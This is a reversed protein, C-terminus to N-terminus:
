ACAPVPPQPGGFCRVPLDHLCACAPATVCEGFAFCQETKDPVILHAAALLRPDLEQKGEADSGLACIHLPPAIGGAGNAHRRAGVHSATLLPERSPTCTFILDCELVLQAISSAVRAEWGHATAALAAAAEPRRAWIVLSRTALGVAGLTQVLLRCITGAGVLGIARPTAVTPRRRASVACSTRLSPWSSALVITM